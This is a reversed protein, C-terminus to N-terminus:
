KINGKEDIVGLEYLGELYADLDSGSLEKANRAAMTVPSNNNILRSIIAKKENTNLSVISLPASKEQQKYLDRMEQLKRKGHENIAEQVLCFIRKTEAELDAHHDAAIALIEEDSSTLIDEALFDSIRELQLQERTKTVTM